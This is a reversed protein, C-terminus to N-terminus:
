GWQRATGGERETKLKQRDTPETLQRPGHRTVRNPEVHGEGGGLVGRMKYPGGGKKGRSTKSTKEEKGCNGKKGRRPGGLRGTKRQTRGTIKQPPGGRPLLTRQRDDGRKKKSNMRGGKKGFFLNQGRTSHREEGNYAKKKKLKSRSKKGCREQIGKGGWKKKGRRPSYKEAKKGGTKKGRRIISCGTNQRYERKLGKYAEVKPKSKKTLKVSTQSKEEKQGKKKQKGEGYGL